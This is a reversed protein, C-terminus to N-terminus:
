RSRNPDAAPPPQGAADAVHRRCIQETPNVRGTFHREWVEASVSTADRLAQELLAPIHGEGLGAAAVAASLTRHEDRSMEKCCVPHALVDRAVYGDGSATAVRTLRRSAEAQRAYPSLDLM